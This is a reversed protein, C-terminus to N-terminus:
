EKGGFTKQFNINRIEKMRARNAKKSDIVTEDQEASVFLERTPEDFREHSIGHLAYAIFSSCALEESSCREWKDCGKECPSKPLTNLMHFVTGAYSM